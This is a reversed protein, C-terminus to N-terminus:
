LGGSGGGSTGGPKVQDSPRVFFDSNTLKGKRVMVHIHLDNAIQSNATGSGVFQSLKYSKAGKMTSTSNTNVTVDYRLASVDAEDNLKNDGDVGPTIVGELTKMQQKFDTGGLFDKYIQQEVALGIALRDETKTTETRGLVQSYVDKAIKEAFVATPTNSSGITFQYSEGTALKKRVWGEVNTSVFKDAVAGMGDVIVSYGKMLTGNFGMSFFFLMMITGFATKLMYNSATDDESLNPSMREPNYESYLKVNPQLSYFFGIIVNLGTGRNGMYSTKIMKEFGFFRSGADDQQYDYVTDWHAKGSLYLLTTLKTVAIHCVGFVCITVIMFQMFAGLWGYSAVLEWSGRFSKTDFIDTLKLDSSSAFARGFPTLLMLYVTVFLPIILDTFKVLKENFRYGTLVM